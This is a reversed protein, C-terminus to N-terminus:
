EGSKMALIEAKTLFRGDPGRPRRMAHKHRSEHQYPRKNQQSEKQTQLLTSRSIRRQLIRNYQKSNVQTFSGDMLRLPTFSLINESKQPSPFEIPLYTPNSSHNALSSIYNENQISTHPIELSNNSSSYSSFHFPQPFSVPNSYHHPSTTSSTTRDTPVMIRPIPTSDPRTGFDTSVPEMFDHPSGFTHASPVTPSNSSSFYPLLPNTNSHSPSNPTTVSVFSDTFTGFPSFNTFNGHNVFRSPLLSHPSSSQYSPSPAQFVQQQSQHQTQLPNFHFTPHHSSLMDFNATSM